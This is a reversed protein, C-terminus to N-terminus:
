VLFEKGGVNFLGLDEFVVFIIKGLFFNFSCRLKLLLWVIFCM